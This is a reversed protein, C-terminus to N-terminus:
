PHMVGLSGCLKSVEDGKLRQELTMKKASAKKINKITVGRKRM